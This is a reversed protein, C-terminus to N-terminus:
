IWNDCYHECDNIGVPSRFHLNKNDFSKEDWFFTEGTTAIIAWLGGKILERVDIIIYWINGLPCDDNELFVPFGIWEKLDNLTMYGDQLAIKNNM